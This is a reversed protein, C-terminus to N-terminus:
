SIGKRTRGHGRAARKEESRGATAEGTSREGTDTNAAKRPRGRAPPPTPAPKVLFAAVDVKLAGALQLVTRWGPERRGQELDRLGGPKLGALAALEERSLGAGERMERLRGAFRGVLEEVDSM